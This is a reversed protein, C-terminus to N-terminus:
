IGVTHKAPAGGEDGEGRKTKKLEITLSQWGLGMKLHLLSTTLCSSSTGFGCHSLSPVQGLGPRAQRGHALAMTMLGATLMVKVRTKQTGLNEDFSLFSFNFHKTM